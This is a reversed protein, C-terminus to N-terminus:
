IGDLEMMYCVGSGVSSIGDWGHEIDTVWNWENGRMENDLGILDYIFEGYECISSNSTGLWASPLVNQHM